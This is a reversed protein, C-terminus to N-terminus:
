ILIQAFFWHVGFQWTVLLQHSKCRCAFVKSLQDCETYPCQLQTPTLTPSDTNSSHAPKEEESIPPNASFTKRDADWKLRGTLWRSVVQDAELVLGGIVIWTGREVQQWEYCWGLRFVETFVSTQLRWHLASSWNLSTDLRFFKETSSYPALTFTYRTSIWWSHFCSTCTHDRSQVPCPADWIVKRKQYTKPSYYRLGTLFFQVMGVLIPHSCSRRIAM